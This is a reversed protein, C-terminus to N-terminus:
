LYGNTHLTNEMFRIDLFSLMEMTCGAFCRLGPFCEVTLLWFKKYVEAKASFVPFILAKMGSLWYIEAIDSPAKAGARKEYTKVYGDTEIYWNM